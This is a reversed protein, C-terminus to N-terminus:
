TPFERHERGDLLAGAESKWVSVFRQGGVDDPNVDDPTRSGDRNIAVMKLRPSWEARPAWSGWQKFFFPAGAAECQDRVTRFWDPHAPRAGPGSEGGAIVWDIAWEGSKGLGDCRRCANANTDPEVQSGGSCRPCPGCVLNDLTLDIPGLLPECSVFRKAAPAALLHPIRQDASAQDEASVGLWVNPLPVRPTNSISSNFAALESFHIGKAIRMGWAVINSGFYERMREPRKTLVQFTHRPSLAMVAFVRDLMADTVFDAFLDTMSGVFIRRQRKWRLPQTLTKEDLFIELDRRSAPKYDLGTGLRRNIKEAYCNRCGESVHTCHWGTRPDPIPSQPNTRARVPNWTADTWEIRSKDSM